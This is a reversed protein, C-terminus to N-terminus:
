DSNKPTGTTVSKRCLPGSFPRNGGANAPFQPRIYRHPKLRQSRRALIILGRDFDLTAIPEMIEVGGLVAVGYQDWHHFYNRLKRGYRIYTHTTHTNVVNCMVACDPIIMRVM